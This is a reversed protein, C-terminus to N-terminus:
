ADAREDHKNSCRVLAQLHIMVQLGEAESANAHSCMAFLLDIKSPTVCKPMIVCTDSCLPDAIHINQRGLPVGM